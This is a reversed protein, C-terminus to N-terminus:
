SYKQSLIVHRHSFACFFQEVMKIYTFIMHSIAKLFLLYKNVVPFLVARGIIYLNPTKSCLNNM